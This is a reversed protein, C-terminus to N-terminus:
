AKKIRYLVHRRLPSGEDLRPHDFDDEQRRSMGLKEMVHRSRWNAPVTMAVIESLALQDFGFRLAAKAAESAYGNGWHAHAIRWGVEVCPTFHASFNPTWLGVFGIFDCVGPVEAAWLGFGHQAFHAEIRGVTAIAEDRTLLAPFHEMVRPDASMEAFPSVDSPRWPRLLLRATRLSSPLEAM